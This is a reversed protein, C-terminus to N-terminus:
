LMKALMAYKSPEKQAIAALKILNDGLNPDVRALIELAQTIKINQDETIVYPKEPDVAGVSAAQPMPMARVPAPAPKPKIWSDALEFMKNQIFVKVRDDGLIGNLLGEVGGVEAPEEELDQEAARAAAQAELRTVTDQLQQMRGYAQSHFPSEQGLDSYCTFNFAYDAELSPKIKTKVPLDEYLNLTYVATSSSTALLKLFQELTERSENESAGSYKCCINKDYM